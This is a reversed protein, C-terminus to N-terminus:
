SVREIFPFGIVITRLGPIDSAGLPQAPEFIAVGAIALATRSARLGFPNRDPPGRENIGLGPFPRLSLEGPIALARLTVVGLM